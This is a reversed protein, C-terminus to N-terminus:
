MTLWDPHGNLSPLLTLSLRWAGSGPPQKTELPGGGHRSQPHETGGPEEGGTAKAAGPEVNTLQWITRASVARGDPFNDGDHLADNMSTAKASANDAYHIIEAELTM